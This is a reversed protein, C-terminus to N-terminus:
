TKAEGRALAATREAFANLQRDAVDDIFLAVAHAHLASRVEFDAEFHVSTYEAGDVSAAARMTWESSLSAFLPSGAASRASVSAVDVGSAGSRSPPSVAVRSTYREEFSMFTIALDAEFATPSLDTTVRSQSCFPVFHRYADVDVVVDYVQQLAFPITRRRKIAWRRDGTTAAAAMRAFGSLLSLSRRATPHQAARFVAGAVM